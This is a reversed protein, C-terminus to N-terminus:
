SILDTLHGLNEGNLFFIANPLPTQNAWDTTHLEQKWPQSNLGWM